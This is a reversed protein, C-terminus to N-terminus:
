ARNSRNKITRQYRSDMAIVNYGMKLFLAIYGHGYEKSCTVGHVVVM